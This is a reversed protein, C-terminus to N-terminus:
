LKPKIPWNQRLFYSQLTSGVNKQSGLNEQICSYLFSGFTLYICGSRIKRRCYLLLFYSERERHTLTPYSEKGPKSYGLANEAAVRFLYVTYPNLGDIYQSTSNSHTEVSRNWSGSEGERRHFLFYLTLLVLARFFLQRTARLFSFNWVLLHWSM